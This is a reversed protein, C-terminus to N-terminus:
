YRGEMYVRAAESGPMIGKPLLPGADGTAGIARLRGKYAGARNDREKRRMEWYVKCALGNNKM